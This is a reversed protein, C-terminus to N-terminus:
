KNATTSFGRDVFGQLTRLLEQENYPKPFYAEAGLQTALRRHKEGSRSTLMTVPIHRLAPQAKLKTLLGFGDLRPMEIDCIVAQVSLGQELRDFAEQGDIAQEVQYGAKTLTSALFRRVNVSDDVILIVPQKPTTTPLVKQIETPLYPQQVPVQNTIEHLFEAVNVLAVVRGDGLVTCGNFGSPMPFLGAISRVTVEQDSWCRDVHIAVMEEGQRLVLISSAPLLPSVEYDHPARPCHFVLKDHLRILPVVQGQYDIVKGGVTEM